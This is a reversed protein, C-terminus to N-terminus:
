EELVEKIARQFALPDRYFSKAWQRSSEVMGTADVPLGQIEVLSDVQAEPLEGYLQGIASSLFAPIVLDIGAFSLIVRRGERLIPLIRKRVRDADETAVCFPGAVIECVRIIVPESM